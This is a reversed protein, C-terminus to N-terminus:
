GPLGPLKVGNIKAHATIAHVGWDAKRYAFFLYLNTIDAAGKITEIPFHGEQLRSQIADQIRSEAAEREDDFAEPHASLQEHYRVSKDLASLLADLSAKGAGSNLFQNAKGFFEDRQRAMLLPSGIAVQQFSTNAFALETAPTPNAPPVSTGFWEEPEESSSKPAAAQESQSESQHLEAALVYDSAVGEAKKFGLLTVAWQLKRLEDVPVRELPFQPPSKLGGRGKVKEQTLIHVKSVLLQRAEVAAAPLPIGQDECARRLERFQEAAKGMQEIYRLPNTLPSARVSQASREFPAGTLVEVRRKEVLYDARSTEAQAALVQSRDVHALVARAEDMCGLRRMAKVVSQVEDTSLGALRFYNTTSLSQAWTRLEDAALRALPHPAHSAGAIMPTLVALKETAETLHSVWATGEGAEQLDMVRDVLEDQARAYSSARTLYSARERNLRILELAAGFDADPPLELPESPDLGALKEAEAVLARSDRLLAELETQVSPKDKLDMKAPRPDESVPPDSRRDEALPHTAM